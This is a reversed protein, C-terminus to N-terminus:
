ESLDIFKFLQAGLDQHGGATIVFKMQLSVDHIAHGQTEIIWQSLAAKAEPKFCPHSADLVRINSITGDPRADYKLTVSGVFATHQEVTKGNRQINKGVIEVDDFHLGPCTKPMIPPVRKLYTIDDPSAAIKEPKSSANAGMLGIAGAGLTALGLAVWWRTKRPKSNNEMIKTLRM